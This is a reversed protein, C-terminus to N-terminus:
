GARWRRLQRRGALVLAIGLAAGTSNAVVDRPDSVRTPLWAGQALEIGCTLAVALALAVWWRRAGLLLVLLAGLPLFLVINATFEVVDFTMWATAPTSQLLALVRDLLGATSPDYPQPGLTVWAIFALYAATAVAIAPRRRV